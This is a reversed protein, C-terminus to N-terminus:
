LAQIVIGIMAIIHYLANHNFQYPLPCSEFCDEYGGTGCIPALLVQVIIGIMLILTGIGFYPIISTTKTTTSTKTKPNVAHVENTEALYQELKEREKQEEERVQKEQREKKPRIFLWFTTVFILLGLVYLGLPIPDFIVLSLIVCFIFIGLVVIICLNRRRSHQHACEHNDNDNERTAEDTDNCNENFTEIDIDAKESFATTTTGTNTDTDTDTIPYLIYIIEFILAIYGTVGLLFIPIGTLLLLWTPETRHLFQHGFGGLIFAIGSLLFYHIRYTSTLSLTTNRTANTTSPSSSSEEQDQQQRQEPHEQLQIKKKKKANSSRHLYYAVLVALVGLTYDTIFTGVTDDINTLEDYDEMPQCGNELWKTDYLVRHRQGQKGHETKQGQYLTEGNDLTFSSSSSSSSSASSSLTTTALIEEWSELAFSSVM